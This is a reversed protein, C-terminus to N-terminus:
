RAYFGDIEERTLFGDGSKDIRRFDRAWQANARRAERPSIFGDNDHDAVDFEDADTDDYSEEFEETGPAIVIFRPSYHASYRSYRHPKDGHRHSVPAVTDAAAVVAGVIAKKSAASADTTSTAALAILTGACFMPIATIFTACMNVGRIKSRM